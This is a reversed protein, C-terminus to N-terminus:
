RRQRRKDEKENRKARSRKRETRGENPFLFISWINLSLPEQSKSISTKRVYGRSKPIM